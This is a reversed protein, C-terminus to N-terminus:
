DRPEYNGQEQLRTISLSLVELAPYCESKSDLPAIGDWKGLIDTPERTPVSPDAGIVSRGLGSNLSRWRCQEAVSRGVTHDAQKFATCVFSKKKKKKAFKLRPFDM